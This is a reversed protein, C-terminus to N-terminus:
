GVCLALHRAEDALVSDRHRPLARVGIDDHRTREREHVRQVLELVPLAVLLQSVDAGSVMFAFIRTTGPSPMPGSTVRSATDTSSSTQPLVISSASSSIPPAAM